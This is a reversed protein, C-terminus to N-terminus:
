MIKSAVSSDMSFSYQFLLTIRSAMLILSLQQFSDWFTDNPDFQPGVTALGVQLITLQFRATMFM